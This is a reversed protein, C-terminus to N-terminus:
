EADACLTTEAKVLGKTQADRQARLREAGEPDVPMLPITLVAKGELDFYIGPPHSCASPDGNFFVLRARGSVDRYVQAVAM